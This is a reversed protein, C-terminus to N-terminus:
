AKVAAVAAEAVQVDQEASGASVGVAGV